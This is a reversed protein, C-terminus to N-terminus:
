SYAPFLFSFHTGKEPESSVKIEINHFDAISKTIALGIGTGNESTGMGPRFRIFLISVEEETMGRGNDSIDVSFRDHRTWSKLIIEGKPDTNKISNNTVNYFMSFILSRNAETLTLDHEFNGKISIRKDESLPNM